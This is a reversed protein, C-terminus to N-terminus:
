LIKRSTNRHFSKIFFNAFYQSSIGNYKKVRKYYKVNNDNLCQEMQNILENSMLWDNGQLRNRILFNPMFKRVFIKFNKMFISASKEKLEHEFYVDFKKFYEDILVADYLKKDIKYEFPLHKFFDVLEDDWFPFRIQYNFFTFVHSSNFIFKALREKFFWNEFVSFPIFDQKLNDRWLQNKLNKKIKMAYRPPLFTFFINSEFIKRHMSRFSIDENFFKRFLSGGINDGVHGPIFISNEPVLKENKLYLAAFYEQLFPSSTGNGSYAFYDKFVDSELYSGVNIKNYEVFIWKYGLKKATKESNSLEKNGKQGYTICIVNKYKFKKLMVVILRSDFGGSLPVVVPLGNLSKVFREFAKEFRVVAQNKADYFTSFTAKKSLYKFYFDKKRVKNKNFFVYEGAQVQFVKKLLTRDELVFGCAKLEELSLKDYEFDAFKENYISDTILLNSTTTSFFLPFFRTKDVAVFVKYDVVIVVSFVGNANKIKSLFENDSCVSCFYKLMKKGEYYNDNEDFLYGIAYINSNSHWSFGKKRHLDIKIM